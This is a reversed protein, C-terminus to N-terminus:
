FLLAPVYPTGSRSYNLVGPSCVMAIAVGAAIWARSIKLLLIYLLVAAMLACILNIRMLVRMVAQTPTDGFRRRYSSGLLSCGLYGSPRWLLHGFEWFQAPRGSMHRTVDNAYRITDGAYEPSTTYLCILAALIVAFAAVTKMRHRGGPPAHVVM